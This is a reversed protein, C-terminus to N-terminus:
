HRGWHRGPSKGFPAHVVDGLDFLDIEFVFGDIRNEGGVSLVQSQRVVQIDGACRRDLVVQIRDADMLAHHM